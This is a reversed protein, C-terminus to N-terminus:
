RGPIVFHKVGRLTENTPDPFRVSSVSGSGIGSWVPREASVSTTRFEEDQPCLRREFGTKCIGFLIGRYPNTRIRGVDRDHIWLDASRYLAGAALGYVSPYTPGDWEEMDDLPQRWLYAQVFLGIVAAALQM